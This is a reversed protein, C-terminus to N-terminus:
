TKTTKRQLMEVGLCSEERHHTATLLELIGWGQFVFSWCLFLKIDGKKRAFTRPNQRM